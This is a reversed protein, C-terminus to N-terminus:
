HGFVVGDGLGPIKVIISSPGHRGCDVTSWHLINLAMELRSGAALCVGFQCVPVIFVAYIQLIALLFRGDWLSV